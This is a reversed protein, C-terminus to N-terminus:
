PDFKAKLEEYQKREDAERKEKRLRADELDAEIEEQTPPRFYYILEDVDSNEGYIDAGGTFQIMVADHYESPVEELKATLWKILEVVNDPRWNLQGRSNKTDYITIEKPPNM